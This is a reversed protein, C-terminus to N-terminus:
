LDKFAVPCIAHLEVGVFIEMALRKDAAFVNPGLNACGAECFSILRYKSNTPPPHIREIEGQQSRCV